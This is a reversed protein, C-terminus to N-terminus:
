WTNKKTKKIGNEDYKKYILACNTEYLGYVRNERQCKTPM